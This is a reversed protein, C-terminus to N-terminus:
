EAVAEPTILYLANEEVSWAHGEPGLVLEGGGPLDQSRLGEEDLVLLGDLFWVRGGDLVHAGDKIIANVQSFM